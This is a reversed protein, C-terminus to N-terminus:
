KNKEIVLLGNEIAKNLMETIYKCDENEYKVYTYKDDIKYVTGAIRDVYDEVGEFLRNHHLDTIKTGIEM